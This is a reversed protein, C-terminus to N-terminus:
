NNLVTIHVNNLRSLYGDMCWDGGSYLEINTQSNLFDVDMAHAFANTTPTRPTRLRIAHRFDPHTSSASHGSESLNNFSIPGQNWPLTNARQRELQKRVVSSGDASSFTVMMPNQSEPKQSSYFASPLSFLHNEYPQPAM